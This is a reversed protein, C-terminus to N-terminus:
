WTVTYYFADGAEFLNRTSVLSVDACEGSRLARNSEVHTDITVTPQRYVEDILTAAVPDVGPDVDTSVVRVTLQTDADAGPSHVDVTLPGGSISCVRVRSQQRGFGSLADIYPTSGGYYPSSVDLPPPLPPNTGCGSLVLAAMAACAGSVVVRGIRM